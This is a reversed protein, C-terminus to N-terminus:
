LELIVETQGEVQIEIYKIQLNSVNNLAKLTQEIQGRRMTIECSGGGENLYQNFNVIATNNEYGFSLIKTNLPIASALGQNALDELFSTQILSKIALPILGIEVEPRYAIVEQYGDPLCDENEKNLDDFYLKLEVEGSLEQTPQGEEQPPELFIFSNIFSEFATSGPNNSTIYFLYQGNIVSIFRLRQGDDPSLVLYDNALLADVQTQSESEITYPQLVTEEEALNYVIVQIEEEDSVKFTTQDNSGEFKGSSSEIVQWTSPYKVKFGGWLDSEQTFVEDTVPEEEAQHNAKKFCGSLTLPLIFLLLLITIKIKMTIGCGLARRSAFRARCETEM